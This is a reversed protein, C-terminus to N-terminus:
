PKLATGKKRIGYSIVARVQVEAIMWRCGETKGTGDEEETEETGEEEEEEEEGGKQDPM